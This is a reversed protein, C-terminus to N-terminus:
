KKACEKCMSDNQKLEERDTEKMCWRCHWSVIKQEAKLLEKKLASIERSAKNRQSRLIEIRAKAWSLCITSNKHAEDQCKDSCFVEEEKIPKNCNVCNCDLQKSRKQEKQCLSCTWGIKNEVPLIFQKEECGKCRVQIFGKAGFYEEKTINRDEM